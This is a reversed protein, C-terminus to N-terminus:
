SICTEKALCRLYKLTAHELKARVEDVKDETLVCIKKFLNRDVFSATYRAIVTLEHIDTASPVTIGSFKRPFKKEVSELPVMNWM